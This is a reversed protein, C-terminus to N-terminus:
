RFLQKRRLSAPLFIMQTWRFVYFVVHLDRFSGFVGDGARGAEATTWGAADAVASVVDNKHM